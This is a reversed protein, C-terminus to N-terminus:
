VRRLKAKKVRFFDLPIEEGFENREYDFYTMVLNNGDIEEVILDPANEPKGASNLIILDVSCKGRSDLAERLVTWIEEPSQEKEAEPYIQPEGERM